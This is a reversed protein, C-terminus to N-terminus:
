LNLQSQSRKKMKKKIFSNQYAQNNDKLIKLQSKLKKNKNILSNVMEKQMKEVERDYIYKDCEYNVPKKKDFSKQISLINKQNVKIESSLKDITAQSESKKLKRKGKYEYIPYQNPRKKIQGLRKLHIAYRIPDSM